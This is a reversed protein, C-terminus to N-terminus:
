RNRLVHSVDSCTPTLPLLLYIFPPASSILAHSVVWHERPSCGSHRHANLLCRSHLDNDITWSKFILPRTYFQILPIGPNCLVDVLVVSVPYIPPPSLSLPAGDTLTRFRIQPFSLAAAGSRVRFAWLHPQPGYPRFAPYAGRSAEDLSCSPGVLGARSCTLAVYVSHSPKRPRTPYFSHSFRPFTCFSQAAKQQIIPGRRSCVHIYPNSIGTFPPQFRFLPVGPRDCPM